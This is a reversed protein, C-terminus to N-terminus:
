RNKIFKSKNLAVEISDLMEFAKGMAVSVNQPIYGDPYEYYESSFGAAVKILVHASELRHLVPQLQAKSKKSHSGGSLMEKDLCHKLNALRHDVRSLQKSLGLRDKKDELAKSRQADSQIAGLESHCLGKSHVENKSWVRPAPVGVMVCLFIYFVVVYAGGM